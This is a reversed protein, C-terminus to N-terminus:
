RFIFRFPFIKAHMLLSQSVLSNSVFRAYNTEGLLEERYKSLVETLTMGKDTRRNRHVDSGEVASIEWSEGVETRTDDLQKFSIIKDGGFTQKLIPEFKLPYM